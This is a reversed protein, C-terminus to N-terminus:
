KRINFYDLIKNKSFCGRGPLNSVVFCNEPYKTKTSLECGSVNPVSIQWYELKLPEM